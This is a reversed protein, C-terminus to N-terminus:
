GKDCAFKPRSTAWKGRTFDPFEIPMSGKEISRGSLDVIASMVVSDYVDLPLPSKTRVAEVLLKDQLGDVGGHGGSGGIEKWWKHQFENQYPAFSEYNEYRPSKGSLYISNREESYVGRTGQLMWRNDYPRPLQMDYNIVVTKGKATKLTSTVIDGQAYKRKAGPHDPGFKQIFYDNIGFSGTATSTISTFRDGCNIDCWSLVPGVSHTPYQDRNYKLLYEAPWRDLGTKQDFFWHPICNHSHACHVHVIQGFLGQRVMNLLALNDNRFSWCELMMCGVGTKESTDVLDWCEKVSLSSPVEVGPVIGHKMAMVAMPTHWKWPTAIIVLDLDDRELMQQWNLEGEVYLKPAPLGAKTIMLAARKAAESDVDCVASITINKILLMAKIHDTGRAGVGIFGIRVTKQQEPMVGKSIFPATATAIGAIKLFRRRNINDNM